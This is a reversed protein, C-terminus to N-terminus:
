KRNRLKNSTNNLYDITKEIDWDHLKIKEVCKELVEAVTKSNVEKSVKVYLLFTVITGILFGLIFTIM